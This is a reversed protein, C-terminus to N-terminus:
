ASRCHFSCLFINHGALGTVVCGHVCPLCTPALFSRPSSRFRWGETLSSGTPMCGQRGRIAVALQVASLFGRVSSVLRVKARILLWVGTSLSDQNYVIRNRYTTREFCATSKHSRPCVAHGYACGDRRARMQAIVLKFSFELGDLKTEFRIRLANQDLSPLASMMRGDSVGSCLFPSLNAAFQMKFLREPSHSVDEASRIYLVNNCRILVEGLNGALAGDIYEETNGLQM